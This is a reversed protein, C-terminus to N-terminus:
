RTIIIYFIASLVVLPAIPMVVKQFPFYAHGGNKAKLEFYWTAGLWFALSGAVIGFILKDINLGYIHLVNSPHGIIGSYYLPVIIVLYYVLADVVARGKFRISKKELWTETWAIMSVILGGIWLGTITDDIGIWRSLGIGAAVAVTCVPCVALAKGAFLFLVASVSLLYVLTKRM